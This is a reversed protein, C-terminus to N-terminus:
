WSWCLSSKILLPSETVVFFAAACFYLDFFRNVVVYIGMEVIYNCDCDFESRLNEDNLTTKETSDCACAM